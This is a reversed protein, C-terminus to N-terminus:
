DVLRNVLGDGGLDSFFVAEEEFDFVTALGGQLLDCGLFFLGGPNFFLGFVFDNVEDDTGGNATNETVNVVAFGGQEIGDALGVDGAAFVAADGLVDAGVLDLM